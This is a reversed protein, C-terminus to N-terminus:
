AGDGFRLQEIILAAEDKDIIMDRRKGLDGIKYEPPPPSPSAAKPSPPPLPDLVVREKSKSRSRSRERSRAAINAMSSSLDDDGDEEADEGEEDDESDSYPGVERLFDGNGWYGKMIEGTDYVLLGKGHPKYEENVLGTYMGSEGLQGTFPLNNVPFTKVNEINPKDRITTVRHVEERNPKSAQLATLDIKLEGYQAIRLTNPSNPAFSQEATTPCLTSAIINSLEHRESAEEVEDSEDVGDSDAECLNTISANEESKNRWSSVYDGNTAAPKDEGSKASSSSGISAMSNRRMSKSEKTSCSIHKMSEECSMDSASIQDDDKNGVGDNERKTLSVDEQISQLLDEVSLPGITSSSSTAVSPISTSVSPVSTISTFSTTVSPASTVSSHTSSMLVEEFTGRADAQQDLRATPPLSTPTGRHKTTHQTIAGRGSMKLLNNQPNVNGQENKGGRNDVTAKGQTPYTSTSGDGQQLSRQRRGFSDKSGEKPVDPDNKEMKESAETVPLPMRDWQYAVALPMRDWQYSIDSDYRANNNNSSSATGGGSSKMSGIAIKFRNGGAEIVDMSPHPPRENNSNRYNSAAIGARGGDHHVSASDEALYRKSSGDGSPLIPQGHPHYQQKEKAPPQKRSSPQVSPSSESVIKKGKTLMKEDRSPKVGRRSLPPSQPTSSFFSKAPGLVKGDASTTASADENKMTQPRVVSSTWNKKIKNGIRRAGGKIAGLHQQQLSSSSPPRQEGSSSTSDSSSSSSSADSSSDSDAGDDGGGSESGEQFNCYSSSLRGSSRVWGEMDYSSNKLMTLSIASGELSKSDNNDHNSSDNQSPATAIRTITSSEGDMSSSGVTAGSLTSGGIGGSSNGIIGLDEEECEPCAPLVDKWGGMVGLIAKKRLIVHPHFLCRGKDDCVHMVARGRGGVVVGTAPPPLPLSPITQQQQKQQQQQQQMHVQKQQQQQQVAKRRSFPSVEETLDVHHYEKQIPPTGTAMAGASDNFSRRKSSNGSGGIDSSSHVTSSKNSSGRNDEMIPSIRGSEDSIDLRQRLRQTATTSATSISSSSISPTERTTSTSSASSTMRGAVAGVGGGGRADAGFAGIKSNMHLAIPKPM